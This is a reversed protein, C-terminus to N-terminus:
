LDRAAISARRPEMEDAATVVGQAVRGSAAERYHVTSRVQATQTFLTVVPTFYLDAAAAARQATPAVDAAGPRDGGPAEAAFLALLEADDDGWQCASFELVTATGLAGALTDASHLASPSAPISSPVVVGELM